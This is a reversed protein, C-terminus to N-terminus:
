DETSAMGPGQLSAVVTISGRRVSNLSEERNRYSKEVGVPWLVYAVGDPYQEDMFAEGKRTLLDPRGERADVSYEIEYQGHYEPLSGHYEVITGPDLPQMKMGM